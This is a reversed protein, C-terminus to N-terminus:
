DVEALRARGAEIQALVSAVATGGSVGRRNVAAAFDWLMAVDAEFAPSLAQL